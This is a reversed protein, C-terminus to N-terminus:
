IMKPRSKESIVYKRYIWACTQQLLAIQKQIVTGALVVEAHRPVSSVARHLDRCIIHYMILISLCQQSNAIMYKCFLISQILFVRQESPSTYVLVPANFTKLVTSLISYFVGVVTALM